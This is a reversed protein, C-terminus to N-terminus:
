YSLFDRISEPQSDEEEAGLLIAKPLLKALKHPVSPASFGLVFAIIPTIKGGSLSVAVTILGGFMIVLITTIWYKAKRAYTPFNPNKRLGYWHIIELFAGGLMAWLIIRHM